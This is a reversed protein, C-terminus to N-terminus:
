IGIVSSRGLYIYWGWWQSMHACHSGIGNQANISTDTEFM